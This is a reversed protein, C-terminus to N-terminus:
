PRSRFGSAVGNVSPTEAPAASPAISAIVNLQDNAHTLDGGCLVCAVNQDAEAEAGAVPEDQDLVPARDGRHRVDHQWLRVALGCRGALERVRRNGLQDVLDRRDARGARPEGGDNDATCLHKRGAAMEVDSVAVLVGHSLCQLGM